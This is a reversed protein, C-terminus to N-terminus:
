SCAPDEMRCQAMKMSCGCSCNNERLIKLVEAKQKVSLGTLDVGPLTAATKWEQALLLSCAFLCASALISIRRSLFAM